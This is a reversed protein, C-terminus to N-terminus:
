FIKLIIFTYVIFYVLVATYFLDYDDVVGSFCTVHM